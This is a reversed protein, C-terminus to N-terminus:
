RLNRLHKKLDKIMTWLKTGEQLLTYAPGYAETDSITVASDQNGCPNFLWLSDGIDYGSKMRIDDDCACGCLGLLEPYVFLGEIWRKHLSDDIALVDKKLTQDKSIDIKRNGIYLEPDAFSVSAFFVFVLLGNKM